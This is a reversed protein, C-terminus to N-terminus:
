DGKGTSSQDFRWGAMMANFAFPPLVNHGLFQGGLFEAAHERMVHVGVNTGIAHIIRRAATETSLPRIPLWTPLDLSGLTASAMESAVLGPCLVTVGVGDPELMGRLGMGLARVWVKSAHYSIWEPDTLPCLSAISAVLAIQGRRRGQMRPIVPAITNILGGVNVDTLPALTASAFVAGRGAGPHAAQAPGVADSLMSPHVGANAIVCDLPRAEDAAAIAKQMAEADKVDITVVEVEAGLAECDRRTADLRAARRAMLVLRVGPAALQRALEAGIGSSAGTILISSFSAPKAPWVYWLVAKIPLKVAAGIIFCSLIVIKHIAALLAGLLEAPSCHTNLPM